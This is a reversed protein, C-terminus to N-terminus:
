FPENDDTIPDAVAPPNRLDVAIPMPCPKIGFVRNFEDVDDQNPTYLPKCSTDDSKVDIEDPRACNSCLTYPGHDCKKPEAAPIPTLRFENPEGNTGAFVDAGIASVPNPPALLKAGSQGVARAGWNRATQEDCPSISFVADTGFVKTYAPNSAVDIRIFGKGAIIQETVFGAYVRHGMIEVIAWEGFPKDDSM